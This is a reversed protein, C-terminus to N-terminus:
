LFYFTNKLETHVPTIDHECLPLPAEDALLRLTEEAIKDAQEVEQSFTEDFEQESVIEYLAPPPTQNSRRQRLATKQQKVQDAKWKQVQDVKRQHEKEAPLRQAKEVNLKAAAKEVVRLRSRKSAEEALHLITPTKYSSLIVSGSKILKVSQDVPDPVSFASKLYTLRLPSHTDSHPNVHPPVNFIGATVLRTNEEHKSIDRLTMQDAGHPLDQDLLIRDDKNAMLLNPGSVVCALTFSHDKCASVDKMFWEQIKTALLSLGDGDSKKVLGHLYISLSKPSGQLGNEICSSLQGALIRGDAAHFVHHTVRVNRSTDGSVSIIDALYNGTNKGLEHVHIGFLQGVTGSKAVAQTSDIIKARAFINRVVGGTVLKLGLDHVPHFRRSIDRGSEIHCQVGLHTDCENRIKDIESNSIGQPTVVVVVSKIDPKIFKSLVTPFTQPTLELTKLGTLSSELSSGYRNGIQEKFTAMVESNVAPTLKGDVDISMNVCVISFGKSQSKPFPDGPKPVHPERSPLPGMDFLGPLTVPVKGHFLQEKGTGGVIECLEAPHFIPKDATGINIFPMKPSKLAFAPEGIARAWVAERDTSSGVGAIQCIKNPQGKPTAVIVHTGILAASIRKLTKGDATAVVISGFLEEMFRSVTINQFFHSTCPEQLLNVKGDGDYTIKGQYGIMEQLGHSRPGPKYFVRNGIVIFQTNRHGPYSRLENALIQGTFHTVSTNLDSKEASGRKIIDPLNGLDIQEHKYWVALAREADAPIQSADYVNSLQEKRGFTTVNDHQQFNELRVWKRNDRTGNKKGGSTTETYKALDIPNFDTQQDTKANYLDVVYFVDQVPKAVGAGTTSIPSPSIRLHPNNYPTSDPPFFMQNAVDQIVTPNLSKAPEGTKVDVVDFTYQHFIQDERKLPAIKKQPDPITMVASTATLDKSSNIRIVKEQRFPTQPLQSIPHYVFALEFSNLLSSSPFFHFFPMCVSSLYCTQLQFTPKHQQIQRLRWRSVDFLFPKDKCFFWGVAEIDAKKLAFSNTGQCSASVFIAHRNGGYDRSSLAAQKQNTRSSRMGSSFRFPLEWTKASLLYWSM